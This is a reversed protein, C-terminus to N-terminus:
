TWYNKEDIYRKVAIQDDAHNPLLPEFYNSPENNAELPFETVSNPSEDALTSNTRRNEVKKLEGELLKIYQEQETLITWKPEEMVHVDSLTTNVFDFDVSPATLPSDPLQLISTYSLDTISKDGFSFFPNDSQFQEFTHVPQHLGSVYLDLPTPHGFKM